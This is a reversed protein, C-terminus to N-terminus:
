SYKEDLQKAMFFYFIGAFISAIIPPLYATIINQNFEKLSYLAVYIIAIELALTTLFLVWYPALGAKRRKYNITTPVLWICSYLFMLLLIHVIGEVIEIRM